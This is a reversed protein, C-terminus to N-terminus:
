PERVKRSVLLVGNPRSAPVSLGLYEIDLVFRTSWNHREVRGQPTGDFAQSSIALAQDQGDANVLIAEVDPSRVPGVRKIMYLAM